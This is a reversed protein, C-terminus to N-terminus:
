ADPAAQRGSSAQRLSRIRDLVRAPLVNKLLMSTVRPFRLAMPYEALARRLARRAADTRGSAWYLDALAVFGAAARRRTRSPGTELIELADCLGEAVESSRTHLVSPARWGNPLLLYALHMFTEPSEWASSTELLPELLHARWRERQGGQWCAAALAVRTYFLASASLTGGGEDAACFREYVITIQRTMREVQTTASGEHVRMRVAPREVGVIRGGSAAVNIWFDLDEAPSVTGDFGGAREFAERRILATGPTAPQCGERVIQRATVPGAPIRGTQPLATGSADTYVWGGVVADVDPHADLFATHGRLAGPVLQDDSDLFCLFEGGAEAAGRNRAAAVGLHAQRFYRVQPSKEVVSRTDDTSADDVVIVEPTDPAQGLVSELAAGLFRGYNYTPIIVSVRSM